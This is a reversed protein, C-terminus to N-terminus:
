RRQLSGEQGVWTAADERQGFVDDDRGGHQGVELRGDFVDGVDAEVGMGVTFGTDVVGCRAVAVVERVFVNGITAHREVVQILVEIRNM